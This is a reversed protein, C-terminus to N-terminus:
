LLSLMFGTFNGSCFIFKVMSACLLQKSVQPFIHNWHFSPSYKTIFNETAVLKVSQPMIILFMETWIWLFSLLFIWPTSFLTTPLPHLYEQRNWINGLIDIAGKLIFLSEGWEKVSQFKRPKHDCVEKIRYGWLNYFVWLVKTFTFCFADSVDEM